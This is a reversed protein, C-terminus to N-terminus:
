KITLPLFVTPLPNVHNVSYAVPQNSYVAATGMFHNTLEQLALQTNLQWIANSALTKYTRSDIVRGNELFVVSVQAPAGGLNQISLITNANRAAVYHVRSILTEDYPHYAVSTYDSRLYGREFFQCDGYNNPCNNSGWYGIPSGPLGNLAYWKSEM